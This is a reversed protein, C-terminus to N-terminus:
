GIYTWQWRKELIKEILELEEELEEKKNELDRIEDEHYLIDLIVEWKELDLEKYKMKLDELSSKEYKKTKAEEKQIFDIQMEDWFTLPRWLIKAM